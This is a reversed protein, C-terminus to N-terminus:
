KKRTVKAQKWAHAGIKEMTATDIEGKELLNRVLATLTTHHITSNLAIRDRGQNSIAHLFGIGARFQQKVEDDVNAINIADLQQNLFEENKALTCLLLQLGIAASDRGAEFEISLVTKIVAGQRIDRVWQLVPEPNGKPLTARVEDKLEIKAGCEVELKTTRAEALAEPLQRVVLDNYREKARKLTEEAADIAAEADLTASALLDLRALINDTIQSDADSGYDIVENM